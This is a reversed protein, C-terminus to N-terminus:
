QFPVQCLPVQNWSGAPLVPKKPELVVGLMATVDEARALKAPLDAMSGTAPLKRPAADAEVPAPRPADNADRVVMVDPPLVAVNWPRSIVIGHCEEPALTLARAM